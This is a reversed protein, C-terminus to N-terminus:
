KLLILKKSDRFGDGTEIRYFYVGSSLRRGGDDHGDWRVRYDGPAHQGEVLTRVLAGGANFIRLTVPGAQAISYRIVTSPNFPNPANQGLANRAPPAGWVPDTEIGTASYCAPEKFYDFMVNKALWLREGGEEIHSFNFAQYFVRASDSGFSVYKTAYRTAAALTNPWRLAIGVKGNAAGQTSTTILDARDLIPCDLNVHFQRGATPGGALGNVVPRVTDQPASEWLDRLYRMGCTFGLFANHEQGNVVLENAINDGAIWLNRNKGSQQIWSQLLAQDQKSITFASLTGAHWIITSYQTLASVPTAPWDYPDTTASGGPTNGYGSTPANVDWVDFRYGHAKVADAWENVPERGAFNNVFLVTALSDFCSLAPNPARKVPLVSASLYPGTYGPEGAGPPLFVQADTSDTASFYYELTTNAGYSAAPVDAYRHNPLAAASPLLATTSWSNGNFRYHMFGSKYGRSCSVEVVASDGLPSNFNDDKFFSTTRFTDNFLDIDRSLFIPPAVTVVGVAVNDFFTYVGNASTVGDCYIESYDTLGFQVQISDKNAGGPLVVKQRAWDKTSGYYVLRTPDTWESWNPDGGNRTRYRLHYYFCAALPLNRYVDFAVFAEGPRNIFVSPTRLLNDLRPVVSFTSPDWCSWVNTRNTTCVDETFVNSSIEFLDGVPPFTSVNWTGPGNECNDTFRVQTGAKISINDISWGDGDYLGDQSSYAIDSTFIFRFQMKAHSEHGVFEYFETIISDPIVVTVTDCSQNNPVKGTYSALTVWDDTIDFVEVRGFEFAQEANFHHRFGLKATQNNPLSDLWAGNQLIQKWSNEYGARNTDFVWSSDIRGCWWANNQCGYFTDIHWATPRASNDVHTWNGENGITLANLSDQFVLVEELPPPVRLPMKRTRLAGTAPRTSVPFEERVVGHPPRAPGSSATGSSAALAPAALVLATAFGILNRLDSLHLRNRRITRSFNSSVVGSM